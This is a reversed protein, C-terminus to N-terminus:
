KCNKCISALAQVLKEKGNWTRGSLGSILMNILLNRYQIDMTGGLKSAM